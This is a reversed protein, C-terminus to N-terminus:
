CIRGALDNSRYDFFARGSYGMGKSRNISPIGLNNMDQLCLKMDM